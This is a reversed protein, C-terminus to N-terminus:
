CPATKPALEDLALDPAITMGGKDSRSSAPASPAVRVSGPERQWDDGNIHATAYGVEWDALTDYVAMHVTRNM